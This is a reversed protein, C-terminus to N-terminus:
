SKKLKKQLLGLDLVYSVHKTRSRRSVLVKTQLVVDSENAKLHKLFVNYHNRSSLGYHQLYDNNM